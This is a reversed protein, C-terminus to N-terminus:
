SQRQVKAEEPAQPTRPDDNSIGQPGKTVKRLIASDNDLTSMIMETGVRREVAGHLGRRDLSVQEHIIKLVPARLYSGQRIAHPCRHHRQYTSVRVASYVGM